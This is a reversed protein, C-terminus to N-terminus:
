SFLKLNFRMTVEINKKGYRTSKEKALCQNMSRKSPFYTDLVELSEMYIRDTNQRSSPYVTFYLRLVLFIGLASGM